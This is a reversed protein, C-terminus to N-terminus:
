THELGTVQVLVCVYSSMINLYTNAITMFIGHPNTRATNKTVHLMRKLFKYAYIRTYAM